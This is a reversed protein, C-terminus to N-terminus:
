MCSTLKVVYKVDQELTEITLKSFTFAPQTVINKLCVLNTQPLVKSLTFYIMEIQFFFGSFLSLLPINIDRGFM